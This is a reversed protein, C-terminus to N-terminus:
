FPTPLAPMVPSAARSRRIAGAVLKKPSAFRDIDGIEAAITYALVWGIRPATRCLPM